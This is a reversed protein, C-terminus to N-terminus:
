LNKILYSKYEFFCGSLDAVLANIENCKSENKISRKIETLKTIKIEIQELMWITSYRVLYLKLRSHMYIAKYSNPNPYIHGCGDRYFHKNYDENCPDLYNGEDDSKLINVYSCAYVLNTYNAVLDIYKKKPLFHDIHFSRKGGFWSDVCDTYGCRSNFDESLYPKYDRYNSYSGKYTRKPQKVRFNIM